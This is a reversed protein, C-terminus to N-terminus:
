SCTRRILAMFEGRHKLSELSKEAMIQCYNKFGKEVSTQLHTLAKETEGARAHYRAGLFYPIAYDPSLQLAHNIATIANDQDNAEEFQLALNVLKAARILSIFREDNYLGEFYTDNEAKEPCSIGTNFAKLLLEYGKGPRGSKCYTRAMSYLM